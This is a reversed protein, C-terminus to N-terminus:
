TWVNDSAIVTARRGPAIRHAWVRNILAVVDKPPPVGCATRDATTHADSVLTVDYGRVFAGFLTSLVCADTEAGCIVVHSIGLHDLVLELATDEFADGHHKEVVPESGSPILTPIIQWADSGAELDEDSHRVWVIPVGQGRMEGIMRTINVVVQDLNWADAVIGVQMDIVLLAKHDGHELSKNMVILDVLPREGIRVECRGPPKLTCGNTSKSSSIM